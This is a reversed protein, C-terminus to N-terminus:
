PIPSREPPRPAAPRGTRPSGSAAPPAPSAGASSPPHSAPRLPPTWAPTELWSRALAVTFRRAGEATMHHGDFYWSANRYRDPDAGTVDIFRIGEEEAFRDLRRVYARYRERSAQSGFVDGHEPVNVLVYEIGRSRVLDATQRLIELGDELTRVDDPGPHPVLPEIRNRALREALTTDRRNWGRDDIPYTPLRPPFSGRAQLVRGVLGRHRLLAVNEWAWAEARNIPGPEMWLPEAIGHQLPEIREPPETRLIEPYRIGQFVYRLDLRPLFFHELYLRVGDPPLGSLGGNFSVLEQGKQARVVSDFALPRFNTRVVSSGVFLVDVRGEERLTTRLARLRPEVHNTYYVRPDPLHNQVPGLHLFAEFAVVVALTMLGTGSAVVRWPARRDPTTPEDPHTEM